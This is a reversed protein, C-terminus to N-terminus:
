SNPGFALRACEGLGKGVSGLMDGLQITMNSGCIRRVAEEVVPSSGMGGTLFVVDPRVGAVSLAQHILTHIKALLDESLEEFQRRTVTTSLDKELYGLPVTCGAVDSLKLKTLEASNIVRHQLQYRHMTRLREFDPVDRNAKALGEIGYGARRFRLQAPVNRTSIADYLVSHAFKDKGLLPMFCRWALHQDFDTGGIRDGSYGLVDSSRDFRKKSSPSLRVIACDTTGGGIDVVLVIQERSITKEYELAAAIPEIFFEISKLGAVKAALEMLHLAQKNGAEGLTGHYFVPRGIVASSISQGSHREAQAIIHRLMQSVVDRFAILHEGHIGSGIFSKPSKVLTGSLPDSIYARLAPTGFLIAQGDKIMSFFTQDWYKRESESAAERRMADEVSRRLQNEDIPPPTGGEKMIRQREAQASARASQFRRALENAEIQRIAVERRATFIVSPLLPSNGELPIGKIAESTSLYASCNSTGFDIGIATM